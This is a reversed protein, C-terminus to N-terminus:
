EMACKIQCHNRINADHEDSTRAYYTVDDDGSLFYVYDGKAPHAVAQLATLGPSAIPGPPLGTHIRTNYPTDVAVTRRQGIMDAGYYATIDSGLPMDERYRKLFIQAVQKQDTPNPVERQIISALTIAQYLTLGQKKFAPVLQNKQLAEYYEDFTRELIQEVSANSSFNYTEGYVYGELDASAPKGALLPHDYQKKFAATIEADSYGARRLVTQVDTKKNEPTDTPDTLTAGPYFTLTFEDVKGSVLHSVVQGLSESPSLRYTGAQLMNRNGELRTHIDFALQSRIIGKEELLQGIQTPSSGELITVPQRSSDGSVPKSAANYWMFGAVVAAIVVGVIVAIIIGIIKKVSRRKKPPETFAPLEPLEHAELLPTVHPREPEVRPQQQPSPQRPPQSSNQPRQPPIIDNM